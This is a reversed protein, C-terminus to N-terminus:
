KFLKPVAYLANALKQYGVVAWRMPVAKWKPVGTRLLLTYFEAHPSKRGTKLAYDHWVAAELGSGFPNHFWRLYWPLTFGDTVFGSHVEGFQTKLPAILRAKGDGIFTAQLQKM